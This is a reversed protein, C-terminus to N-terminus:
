LRSGMRHFKPPLRRLSGVRRRLIFRWRAATALSRRRWSLPQDPPYGHRAMEAGAIADVLALDAHDLSARGRGVSGARIPGEPDYGGPRPSSNQDVGGEVQLQVDLFEGVRRLMDTPATVLDEYIVTLVRPHSSWMELEYASRRWEDLIDSPPRETWSESLSHWSALVDRPDRLMFVIQCDEYWRLLTSLYKYHDPTKEGPRAGDHGSVACALLCSLVGQVSHDDREQLCDLVKVPPLLDEDYRTDNSFEQWFRRFGGNSALDPGFRRRWRALLHTEFPLMVVDPSRALITAMLSTGSRPFGVVFIPGDHKRDTQSSRSSM